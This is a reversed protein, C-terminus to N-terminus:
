GPIKRATGIKFSRNKETRTKGPEVPIARGTVGIKEQDGTGNSGSFRTGM